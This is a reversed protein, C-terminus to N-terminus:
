VCEELWYALLEDPDYRILGVVKRAKPGVGLYRWQRLTGITTSFFEAVEDPTLPRGQELLKRLAAPTPQTTHDPASAAGRRAM